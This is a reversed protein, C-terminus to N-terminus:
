LIRAWEFNLSKRRRNRDKMIRKMHLNGRLHYKTNKRGYDVTSADPQVDRGYLRLPVDLMIAPGSAHQLDERFMSDTGYWGAFTEDYGGAHWYLERDLLWSNPHPKYAKGNSLERAFRYHRTKDIDLAQVQAANEATLLHDMDTLLCLGEAHKMALNRAGNQNWPIDTSIRYLAIPFGVDFLHPQAPDRKSCDDVIIAQWNQKDQYQAWEQLHVDLMGGNEFYAYVLTIM